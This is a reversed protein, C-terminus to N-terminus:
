AAETPASASRAADVSARVSAEAPEAGLGMVLWDLSVGLVRAYSALVDSARPRETTDAEILGCHGEARGALRDLERGSLGVALGRALRLRVGISNM